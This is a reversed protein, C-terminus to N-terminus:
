SSMTSLRLYLRHLSCDVITFNTQFPKISNFNVNLIFIVFLKVFSIDARAVVSIITVSKFSSSFRVTKLRHRVEDIQLVTEVIKRNDDALRNLFM